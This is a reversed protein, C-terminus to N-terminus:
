SRRLSPNRLPKKTTPRPDAAALREEIEGLQAWTLSPTVWLREYEADAVDNFGCRLRYTYRRRPEKVTFGALRAVRGEAYVDWIARQRESLEVDPPADEFGGDLRDRARLLAAALETRSIAPHLQAQYQPDEFSGGSFWLAISGDTIEAASAVLPHPLAEDVEIAIGVDDPVGVATAADEAIALLEGADYKVMTFTEPDLTITHSV